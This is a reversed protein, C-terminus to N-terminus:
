DTLNSQENSWDTIGRSDVDVNLGTVGYLSLTLVYRYVKLVLAGYIVSFGVERLWPIVMCSTQTPEFYQVVVQIAYVVTM